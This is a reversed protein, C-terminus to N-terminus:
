LDVVFLTKTLALVAREAADFANVVQRILPSVRVLQKILVGASRIPTQSHILAIVHGTAEDFVPSGSSGPLVSCGFIVSPRPNRKPGIYLTRPTEVKLRCNDPASALLPMGKPHGVVTLKHGKGPVRASLRAEGSWRWLSM